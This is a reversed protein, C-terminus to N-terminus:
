LGSKPGRKVSASQIIKVVKTAKKSPPAQFCGCQVKRKNQDYVALTLVRLVFVKQSSYLIRTILRYKNECINFVVCNGFLDANGFSLRVEGWNQWAVSKNSVHTFWARLPGESDNCGPSEWFQQFHEQHAM